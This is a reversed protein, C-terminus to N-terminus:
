GVIIWLEIASHLVTLASTTPELGVPDAVHEFLM